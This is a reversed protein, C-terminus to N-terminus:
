PSYSRSALDHVRWYSEGDTWLGMLCVEDSGEPIDKLIMVDDSGGCELLNRKGDVDYYFFATVGFPPAEALLGDDSTFKSGDAYFIEWRAVPIM